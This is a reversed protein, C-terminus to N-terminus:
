IVTGGKDACDTGPIEVWGQGKCENHGTCANGAGACSGQGKCSNIGFCHVLASTVASADGVLVAAGTDAVSADASATADITVAVTGAELAVYVTGGKELCEKESPITIWGQGKCENQGQCASKGDVSQCESTGKCTNIGVCKVSAQATTGTADGNAPSKGEQESGPSTSSCAAAFLSAVASSLLATRLDKMALINGKAM